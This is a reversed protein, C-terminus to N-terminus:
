ATVALTAALGFLLAMVVVEVVARRLSSEATMRHDAAVPVWRRRSWWGLGLLVILLATKALLVRGYGSDVLPALGGLRIIGNCIGTATVVAAAPLAWSSYRPLIAAWEGRSRVVLALGLLVGFWIAAALTHVAAFVSGFDQQSMHGTIPRLVLTVASFVLVLDAAARHPCRFGLVCYGTVVGTGILIAIGVQGGNIHTLYDGFDRAGLRAVPVGVVAAATCTLVVFEAVTWCGALVALPRWAPQLRGHLRPLAALGFVTSGACDALARAPAESQVPDPAALAWALTVGLLAAPVVLLLASRLATSSGGTPETTRV